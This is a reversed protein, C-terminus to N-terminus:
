QKKKKVQQRLERELQGVTNMVAESPFEWQEGCGSCSLVQKIGDKTQEREFKVRRRCVSHEIHAASIPEEYGASTLAQTPGSVTITLYSEGDALPIEIRTLKRKEKM